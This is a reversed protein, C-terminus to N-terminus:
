RDMKKRKDHIVVFSFILSAILAITMMPKALPSGDLETAIAGIGFFLLLFYVFYITKLQM